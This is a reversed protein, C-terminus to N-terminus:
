PVSLMLFGCPAEPEGDGWGWSARSDQPCHSSKESVLNREVEKYGGKEMSKTCKQELCPLSCALGEWHGM